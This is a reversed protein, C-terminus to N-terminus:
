MKKFVGELARAYPVSLREATRARGRAEDVDVVLGQLHLETDAPQMREGRTQMLQRHLSIESKMGIIGGLSGTLGLDTIYATGGPLVREDATQVHTHTGVVAAVRGDLFRGMAQKESTAEAHFDLVIVDAEGALEALLREVAQFPDDIPPMFVRGQLNLVALRVSGITVVAVGRGPNGPPYNAPRLLRPQRDLVPLIERKDWVHNGTTIVDVGLDLFESVVEPTIGFGGASNEGNLVVADAKQEDRVLRLLGKAVKRGPSGIVDAVFLIRM